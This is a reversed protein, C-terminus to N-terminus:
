FFSFLFLHWTDFIDGTEIAEEKVAEVTAFRFKDM